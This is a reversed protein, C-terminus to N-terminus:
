RIPADLLPRRFHVMITALSSVYNRETELIEEVLKARRRLMVESEERKGEKSRSSPTRCSDGTKSESTTATTTTSSKAQRTLGSDMSPPRALSSGSKKDPLTIMMSQARVPSPRHPIPPPHQPHHQNSSSQPHDGITATSSTTIPMAAITPSAIYSSTTTATPPTTFGASALTTATSSIQLPSGYDVSQHSSARRHQAPAALNTDRLPSPTSNRSSPHHHRGHRKPSGPPSPAPSGPPSVHPSFTTSSRARIFDQAFALASREFL